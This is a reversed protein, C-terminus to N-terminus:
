NLLVAHFAKPLLTHWDHQNKQVRHLALLLLLSVPVCLLWYLRTWEPWNNLMSM